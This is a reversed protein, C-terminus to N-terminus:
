AKKVEHFTKFADGDPDAVGNEKLWKGFLSVFNNISSLEYNTGDRRRKEAMLYSIM